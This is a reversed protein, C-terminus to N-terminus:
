GHNRRIRATESELVIVWDQMNPLGPLLWRGGPSSVVGLDHEKGSRPDYFYARYAVRPEIKIVAVPGCTAYSPPPIYVIRVKEPIGAMHPGFCDDPKGDNLEMWEPHSEFRWWEYRELLWRAYQMQGSGPFAAIERWDSYEGWIGSTFKFPERDRHHIHWCGEAAGYTHGAAGNLVCSWVAFRQIDQWSSGLIGEYIPEGNIIPLRPRRDRSRALTQLMGPLGSFSHGTQLMAVTIPATEDLMERSERGSNPHATLPHHYPDIRTLYRAVESWDDRLNRLAEERQKESLKVAFDPYICQVEGCLCWVVPYAGYRAVLYRWHQGAKAVGLRALWYGWSGVICPVLGNSVLCDIRRDALDFYGPNIRQYDPGWPLGAETGGRLDGEAIAPLYGAVIQILNFGKAVRDAVLERFEGPWEFDRILGYWWTDGLWFFPTGDHHELHRGGDAVRLHGHKLLPNEGEYPAIELRGTQGHLAANDADSCVSRYQHVGILPSAYRVRWANDGAWFAPVKREVGDPDTFIVDLEIDHFPDPYTKGSTYSRESVCNQIGTNMTEDM